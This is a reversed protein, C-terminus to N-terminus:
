ASEASFDLTFRVRASPFATTAYMIPRGADDVNTAEIELVNETQPM